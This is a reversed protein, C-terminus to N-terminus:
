NSIEYKKRISSIILDAEYVFDSVPKVNSVRITKTVFPVDNIFPDNNFPDKHFPNSSSFSNFSNGSESDVVEFYKRDASITVEACRLLCLDGTM